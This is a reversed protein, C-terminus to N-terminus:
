FFKKVCRKEIKPVYNDVFLMFDLNEESVGM